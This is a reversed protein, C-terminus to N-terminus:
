GREISVVLRYGNGLPASALPGTAIELLSLGGSPGEFAFGPSYAGEEVAPRAAEAEDRDMAGFVRSPGHRAPQHRPPNEGLRYEDANRSDHMATPRLPMDEIGTADEVRKEKDAADDEFRHMCGYCIEMDDFCRAKCVPCTKM